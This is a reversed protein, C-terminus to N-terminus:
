CVNSVDARRRGIAQRIATILENQDYPKQLFNVGRILEPTATTEYGSFGSAFLIPMDANWARIRAYAEFGGMRPMVVDLLVASIRCANAEFMAVAEAGDRALLVSYGAKKLFRETLSRVMGDDEALLVTVQAETAPASEAFAAPVPPSEQVLGVEEQSDPPLTRVDTSKTLLKLSEISSNPSNSFVTIKGIWDAVQGGAHLIHDLYRQEPAGPSLSSHALEANGNIVHVLNNLEHALGGALQRVMEMRQENSQREQVLKRETTDRIFVLASDKCDFRIPVASVECVVPAGDLRM